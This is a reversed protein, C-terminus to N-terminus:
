EALPLYIEDSFIGDEYIVVSKGDPLEATVTRDSTSIMDVHVDSSNLGLALKKKEDLETVDGSYSDEYCNGLAIHTNGYRGGRNEDYLTHGMYRTIRSERRDTLSFEGVRSAGEDVSLLQRLAVEGYKASHEVVRGKEFRLFVGEAKQGYIDVPQNFRMWGETETKDPSIFVENSPVNRGTTSIWKRDSGLGVRLQVDKGEVHLRVIGMETLRAAVLGLKQAKRQWADVPDKQDLYCARIIQRWYEEVGMGARETMSSTPFLGVTWSFKGAAEKKEFKDRVTLRTRYQLVKAPDADALEDVDHESAIVLMHDTNRAMGDYLSRPNDSLQHAEGNNHLYRLTGSMDDHLGEIYSAKADIISRLVASYLPLASTNARVWVRERPQVGNGNGLAYNVLVDAYRDLIVQEPQYAM